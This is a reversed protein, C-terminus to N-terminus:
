LLKPQGDEKKEDGNGNVKAGARKLDETGIRAVSAVYDGERLRMLRVGRTSRGSVKVDKVKLRIAVGSASIL